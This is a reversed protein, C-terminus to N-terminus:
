LKTRSFQYRLNNTSNRQVEQNHVSLHDLGHVGLINHGFHELTPTPHTMFTSEPKTDPKINPKNSRQRGKVAQMLSTQFALRSYIICHVCKNTPTASSTVRLNVAFLYTHLCSFFGPKLVWPSPWMFHLIPCDAAWRFRDQDLLFKLVNKFILFFIWYGNCFWKLGRM